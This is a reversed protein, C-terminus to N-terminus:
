NYLALSALTHPLVSNVLQLAALLQDVWLSVWNQLNAMEVQSRVEQALWLREKPPVPAVARLVALKGPM